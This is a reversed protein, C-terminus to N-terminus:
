ADPQGDRQVPGLRSSEVCLVALVVLGIGLLQTPALRQNLLVFGLVVSTVPEVNMVMSAKVPGIKALVEFLTIIAFSYFLPAGLFGVWAYTTQPLSVGGNVVSVAIVCTLVVGLMHLTVPRSDGDGRARGSLTVVTTVCVAGALCLAIGFGSPRAGFVDLALLIGAFATLLGVVTRAQFPQRGSSWEVVAIMLPFTYFTAVVLGVPMHVIAILVAFAYGAFFFGTITAIGRRERPLLRPVGKMGLLLWLVVFATGTRALLVANPTAGGTYAVAALSTNTAFSMAVLVAVAVGHWPRFAAEGPGPQVPAKM